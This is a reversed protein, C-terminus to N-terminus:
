GSAGTPASPAAPPRTVLRASAIGQGGPLQDLRSLRDPPNRAQDSLHPRLAQRRRRPQVRAGAAAQRRVAELSAPRDKGLKEDRRRRAPHLQRALGDRVDARRVVGAPLPCGRRRHLDDDPDAPLRRRAAGPRPPRPVLRLARPGQRRRPDDAAARRGARRDGPERRRRPARGVGGRARRDAPRVPPLLRGVRDVTAQRARARLPAPASAESRRRLHSRRAGRPAREGLRRPADAACSRSPAHARVFGESTRLRRGEAAGHRSARGRAGRRAGCRGARPSARRGSTSGGACESQYRLPIALAEGRSRGPRDCLISVSRARM